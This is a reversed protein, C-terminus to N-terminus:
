RAENDLLGAIQAADAPGDDFLDGQTSWQSPSREQEGGGPAGMGGMMPMGGGMAGAQMGGPQQHHAGDDPLTALGAEGAAPAVQDHGGGDALLDGQTSWTTDSLGDTGGGFDFGVSQTATLQSPAAATDALAHQPGSDQATALNSSDANAFGHQRPDDQPLSHAGGTANDAPAPLTHAQSPDTNPQGIVPQAPDPTGPTLHGQGQADYDILYTTPKGSGDDITLKVNESGPPNQEATITVNGDHLVVKGDPGAVAHQVGDAGTVPQGDPGLQQGAPGFQQNQPPQGDPGLQQQVPRGDPGLQGTQLPKGDPGVAAHQGQTADPQSFDMDYSKPHGSGDDVTMKVHGQGDPSNVTYKKSGDEITVSEPHQQQGNKTPDQSPDVPMGTDVSSPDTGDQPNAQPQSEQPQPQEIPPPQYSQSATGGSGTQQPYGNGNGNGHGNGNGDGHGDQPQQQQQQGGPPQLVDFPNATTPMADTFAQMGDSVSKHANNILTRFSEMANRYYRAFEDMERIFSDAYIEWGHGENIDILGPTNRLDNWSIEGTGDGDDDVDNTGSWDRGYTHARDLYMILTRKQNFDLSHYKDKMNKINPMDLQSLNYIPVRCAGWLGKAAKSITDAATGFDTIPKAIENFKDAAAAGTKDTWASHIGNVGNTVSTSAAAAVKSLSEYRGTADWLLGMNIGRMEPIKTKEAADDLMARQPNKPFRVDDAAAPHECWINYLGGMDNGSMFTIFSNVRDLLADSTDSSDVGAPQVIADVVPKALADSM